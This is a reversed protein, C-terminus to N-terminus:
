TGHGSRILEAIRVARQGVQKAWQSSLAENAATDFDNIRLADLMRKFQSLRPWGVNFCANALGRQVNEPLNRWWPLQKDLEADVRDLDNDLLMMAETETIGLDDLNRGCGVTNVGLSDKYVKLRLGEDRVLDQRLQARM